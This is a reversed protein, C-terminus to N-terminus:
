DILKNILTLITSHLIKQRQFLSVELDFVLYIINCPVLGCVGNFVVNSLSKNLHSVHLNWRFVTKISHVHCIDPVVRLAM